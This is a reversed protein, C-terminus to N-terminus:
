GEVEVVEVGALHHEHLVGGGEDVEGAPVAREVLEELRAVSRWVSFIRYKGIM